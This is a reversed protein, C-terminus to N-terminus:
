AGTIPNGTISEHLRDITPRLIMTYTDALAVERHEAQAKLREPSQAPNCELLKLVQCAFLLSERPKRRKAPRPARKKQRSDRKSMTGHQGSSKGLQM